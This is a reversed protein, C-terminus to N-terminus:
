QCWRNQAPSECLPLSAMSGFSGGGVPGWRPVPQDCAGARGGSCWEEPDAAWSATGDVSLVLNGLNWVQTVDPRLLRKIDWLTYSENWEKSWCRLLCLSVNWLKLEFGNLLLPLQDALALGRKEATVLVVKNRPGTEWSGTSQVLDCWLGTNM